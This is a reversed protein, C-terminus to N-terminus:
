AFHLVALLWYAMALTVSLSIVSSRVDVGLTNALIQHIALAQM